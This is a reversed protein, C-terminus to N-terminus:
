CRLFRPCINLYKIPINKRWFLNVVITADAVHKMQAAFTKSKGWLCIHSM